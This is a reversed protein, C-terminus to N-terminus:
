MEVTESIKACFGSSFQATEMVNKFIEEYNLTRHSQAPSFKAM